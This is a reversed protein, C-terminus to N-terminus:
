MVTGRIYEDNRVKDMRTVGMSFRQMKLKAVEPEVEQRKTLCVDYCTEGGDQLGELESM